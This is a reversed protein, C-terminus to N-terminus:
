AGGPVKGWGDVFPYPMVFERVKVLLDRSHSYLIEGRYQLQGIVIGPHVGVRRAFSQVKLRSFLPRTGDIFREFEKQPILNNVAFKDADREFAPKTDITSARDGVLDTDLPRNQNELGDGRLVHSLEHFLTHWFYDIRDYRLSLVVVPTGEDWFCAGDIRTRPLPEVFVLKVGAESLVEPVASVSASVHLMDRLRTISHNLSDRSYNAKVEVPRSVERARYLWAQQALTISDYSTSKRAAHNWFEPLDDISKLKFFKMVREALVEPNSSPEIWRRRMMEKIPGKAYITARLGVGADVGKSRSLQYANDLRLWYQPTTGFAAALGRATEPTVGRRNAIIENVLQVPRGLIDALDVQSWGRAELEERIFEGPPFVEAPEFTVV